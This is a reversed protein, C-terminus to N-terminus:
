DDWKPVWAPVNVLREGRALGSVRAMEDASLEFDFIAFNERMRGANATKPIAIVDGQQVLWRLAVQVPTKGHRAGIEAMVPDETVAGRGVPSYATIALGHRRIAALMKTQTIYPHLEIQETALPETAAAIARDLLDITFNSLGIHRTLGRRKADCLAGVAEEVPIAPNPWHILALDVTDLRLKRLSEELSRQLVGEGEDEPRIKTTIFLDDRKLGSEAIAAGVEEENRYGQATDIHRYGIRLAELVALRCEDGTLKWTGFGLAPINAGNASVIQM